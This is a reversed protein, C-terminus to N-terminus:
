KYYKSLKNPNTGIYYLTILIWNRLTTYLIGKDEWKRASTIVKEKSIKIKYNQKKLKQMLNVDEMLSINSYGGIKNFIDKKIFIAQDGYPQRTIRSRYSSIKAIFALLLSSSDFSLDFAGAVINKQLTNTIINTANIPLLTDAHLFLVIDFQAKKVGENMQNARGKESIYTKINNHNKITINKITSGNNGDVIILENNKLLGNNILNQIFFNINQENYVPM